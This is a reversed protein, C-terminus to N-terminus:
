LISISILIAQELWRPGVPLRVLRSVHRIAVDDDTEDM